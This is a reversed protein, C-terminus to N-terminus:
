DWGKGNANGNIEQHVSGWWSYLGAAELLGITEALKPFLYDYSVQWVKTWSLITDAVPKSVWKSSSVSELFVKTRRTVRMPDIIASMQPLARDRRDNERVKGIAGVEWALFSDGPDYFSLFEARNALKKYYFHREERGFDTELLVNLVSDKLASSTHKKYKRKVATGIFDVNSVLEEVTTPVEPTSKTILLSFVSGKYVNGLNVALFWWLLLLLLWLISRFQLFGRPIPQEVLFRLLSFWEYFRSLKGRSKRQPSGSYINFITFCAFMVAMWIWWEFPRILANSSRVKTLTAPNSVIIIFAFPETEVAFSLPYAFAHHIYGVDNEIVMRDLILHLSEVKGKESEHMLTFNFTQSLTVHTCFHENAPPQNFMWSPKPIRYWSGKRYGSCPTGEDNVFQSIIKMDQRIQSSQIKILHLSKYNVANWEEKLIRLNELKDETFHKKLTIPSRIVGRSNKLTTVNACPLCILNLQSNEDVELFVSPQRLVALIGYGVFSLFFKFSEESLTEVFQFLEVSRIFLLFDPSSDRIFVASQAYLWIFEQISIHVSCFSLKMRLKSLPQPATTNIVKVGTKNCTRGIDIVCYKSDIDIHQIQLLSKDAYPSKYEFTSSKTEELEDMKASTYFSRNYYPNWYITSCPAFLDLILTLNLNALLIQPLAMIFLFLLLKPM